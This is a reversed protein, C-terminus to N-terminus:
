MYTPECSMTTASKLNFVWKDFSPPGFTAKANNSFGFGEKPIGLMSKDMAGNGNEDHFYRFGYKGPKLNTVEITCTNNKIDAKIGKLEKQNEDMLQFFVQGKSNKLNAIEVTLKVQSFLVGPGFLALTMLLAKMKM